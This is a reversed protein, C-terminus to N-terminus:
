LEKEQGCIPCQLRKRGGCDCVPSQVDPNGYDPDGYSLAYGAPLYGTGGCSPCDVALWNHGEERVQGCRRCKCGNWDHGEDRIQGCRRCKCGNWDHGEDSKQGCRRCKCGDWDHGLKRCKRKNKRDERGYELREKIAIIGKVIGFVILGALVAGILILWLITFWDPAGEGKFFILWGLGTLIIGGFTLIMLCLLIGTLIRLTRKLARKMNM